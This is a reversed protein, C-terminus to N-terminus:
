APSTRSPPRSSATVPSVEAFRRRSRADAPRGDSSLEIAHALREAATMLLEENSVSNDHAPQTEVGIDTMVPDATVSVDTIHERGVERWEGKVTSYVEETRWCTYVVDGLTEDPDFGVRRRPGSRPKYRISIRHTDDSM